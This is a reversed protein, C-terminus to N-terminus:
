RDPTKLKVIDFRDAEIIFGAALAEHLVKETQEPSQQFSERRDLLITRYHLIAQDRRDNLQQLKERRELYQGVTEIDDNGVLHAAIRGTALCTQHERRLEAVQETLWRGDEDDVARRLPSDGYSAAYAEMLTSGSIPLQGIYLSLLLGTALAGVAYSLSRDSTVQTNCSGDAAQKLSGTIASLWFLPLLTSPYQFALSHAPQHNWMLLVALPLGAPLLWRWGSVIAPLCCPVLLSIVFIANERSLFQAWFVAPRLVPSLVIELPSNGLPAFRATQFDAIGSLKYVMVFTGIMICSLLLWQLSTLKDSVHRNATTSTNSAQDAEAVAVKKTANWYNYVSACAAFLGVIVFVGEEMSCALMLAVVALLKRNIIILWLAALLLPIALSIPHWGYTFAINMQGISPQVLWACAWCAAALRSSNLSHAILYIFGASAVFCAAQLYFCLTVDPYVKWLPVLLVLGPNFHDWFRPLVPSELLWGRGEATNAVRQMFHGFDNYGFLFNDYHDFSQIVWWVGCVAAVIFVLGSLLQQLSPSLQFRKTLNEILCQFSLGTWAAFWLPEFFSPRAGFQTRAFGALLPGILALALMTTARRCSVSEGCAYIAGLWTGIFTVCFIMVSLSAGFPELEVSLLPEVTYRLVSHLRTSMALALVFWILAITVVLTVALRSPKGTQSNPLNTTSKQKRDAM